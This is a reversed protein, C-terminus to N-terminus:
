GAVFYDLEHKLKYDAITVRKSMCSALEQSHTVVVLAANFERNLELLLQHVIQKNERDLNGTPEDALLLKPKMMLARALAVRQQEGGSLKNVRYELRDKLGVRELLAAANERAKRRNEGAIVAPMMVNELTSFETLLHHFQFVFGIERNRFQALHDDNLAFVNQGNIEITGADPRDLTGLLHLFTSKGLGSAGVVAVTEGPALDFDLDRLITITDNGNRYAKSLGRVKVLLNSSSANDPM